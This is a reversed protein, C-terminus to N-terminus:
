DLLMHLFVLGTSVNRESVQKARFVVVFSFFFFFLWSSHPFGFLMIISFLFPCPMGPCLISLTIVNGNITLNYASFGSNKLTIYILYAILLQLCLFCPCSPAVLYFLGFPPCISSHKLNFLVPKQIGIRPRGSKLETIM